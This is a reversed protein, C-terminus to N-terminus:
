RLICLLNTICMCLQSQMSKPFHVHNVYGIRENLPEYFRYYSCHVSRFNAPIIYKVALGWCTEDTVSKIFFLQM